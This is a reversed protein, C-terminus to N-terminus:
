PYGSSGQKMGHSMGKFTGLGIRNEPVASAGGAAVYEYYEIMPAANYWVVETKTADEIPYPAGNYWQVDIAM